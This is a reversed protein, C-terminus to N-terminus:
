FNSCLYWNLIRYNKDPFQYPMWPANIAKEIQNWIHWESPLEFVKKEQNRTKTCYMQDECFTWITVVVTM